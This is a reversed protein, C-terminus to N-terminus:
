NFELGEIITDRQTIQALQLYIGQLLRTQALANEHIQGLLIDLPISNPNNDSALVERERVVLGALTTAQSGDLTLGSAVPITVDAM